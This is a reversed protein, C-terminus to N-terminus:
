EETEIKNRGSKIMDFGGRNKFYNITEQSLEVYKGGYIGAPGNLFGFLQSNVNIKKIYDYLGVIVNHGGSAQGGSLVCGIRLPGNTEEKKQHSGFLNIQSVGESCICPFLNSISEDVKM